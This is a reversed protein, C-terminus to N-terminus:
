IRLEKRRVLLLLLGLLMPFGAGTFRYNDVKCESASPLGLESYEDLYAATWALPSNWNITIENTSWSGIHDIYCTEAPCNADVRALSVPDGTTAHSSNPGGSLVGPPPVPYDANEANAWFRHHPQQLPNEGYGTIYSKGLPNNGMLYTLGKAMADVYKTDQTCSLDNAMGLVMMNNVVGSNSGWELEASDMPMSYGPQNAYTIYSEAAELILRKASEIVSRKVQLNTANTALSM